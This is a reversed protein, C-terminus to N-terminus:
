LFEREFLYLSIKKQKAKLLGSAGTETAVRLWEPIGAHSPGGVGRGTSPPIVGTWPDDLSLHAVEWGVTFAWYGSSGAGTAYISALGM